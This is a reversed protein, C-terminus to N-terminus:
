YRFTSSIFVFVFLERVDIRKFNDGSGLQQSDAIVDAGTGYSTTVGIRTLTHESFFGLVLSGGFADTDPLYDKAFRDGTKGPIQPASSFNTFLGFSISFEKRILSELGFNFNVVPHRKVDTPITTAQELEAQGNQTPDSFSILKYHTPANFSMDGTFTVTEPIVYALGVRISGGTGTDAVIGTPEYLKYSPTGTKPDGSSRTVHLSATDYIRTTPSTISVGLSWFPDIDAKVGFTMGVAGVAASLDTEVANFATGKSTAPGFISSAERDHLSRYLFSGSVGFRWIEDVRIAYAASSYLTQDLLNRRFTLQDGDPGPGSTDLNINRYSPVFAAVGYAQQLRGFRDPPGIGRVYGASMPIINLDAFVSDIHRVRDALSGLISNGVAVEVGYLNASVDVSTRSSDVIGAPNYFIGSPDNAIATFAGGLGVSRGGLPYDQYHTDDARAPGALLAFAAASLLLARLSFRPV